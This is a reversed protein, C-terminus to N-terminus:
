NLHLELNREQHPAASGEQEPNPNPNPNPRLMKRIKRKLKELPHIDKAEFVGEEVPRGIILLRSGVQVLEYKEQPVGEASVTLSKQKDPHVIIFTRNNGGVDVSQVVGMIRGKGPRHMVGRERQELTKYITPATKGFVTDAIHSIKCIHFIAGLVVSAGLIALSMKIASHKYTGKTRSIIADATVLFVIFALLWLFPFIQMLHGLASEGMFARVEWTNGTVIFIILSVSLSGVLLLGAGTAWLALNKCTFYWKPRPAVKEQTIREMVERSVDSQKKNNDQTNM